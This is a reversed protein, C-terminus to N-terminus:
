ETDDEKLLEEAMKDLMAIDHELRAIECSVWGLRFATIVVFACVLILLILKAAFM